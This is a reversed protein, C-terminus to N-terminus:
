LAAASKGHGGGQHGKDGPVHSKWGSLARRPWHQLPQAEDPVAFRYRSGNGQVKKRYQEARHFTLVIVRLAIMVVRVAVIMIVQMMMRLFVGMIM